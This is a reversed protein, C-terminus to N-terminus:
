FWRKGKTMVLIGIIPAGILATLISLPIEAAIVSRALTDVIIMYVGGVLVSAPILSLHNAGFIMRAIHPILLGVWGVIGCTAVSASTIVTAAVIILATLLKVREGLFIAQEEGTSLINIKWRLLYLIGIGIISIPVLFWLDYWNTGSLSGMLWYVITPLKDEPDAGYKILSILASFIAGVIIGSLVLVLISQKNSRSGIFYTMTVALLGFGFAGFQVWILSEFLVIMLAAGFGSGAAVGLINPGVLPNRFLSQFATGAVALSAGIFFAAIIRPLRIDYVITQHIGKLPEGTFVAWLEEFSLEFRGVSLAVLSTLLLSFVVFIYKM